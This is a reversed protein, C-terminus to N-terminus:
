GVEVGLLGLWYEYSVLLTSIVAFAVFLLWSHLHVWQQWKPLKKFQEESLTNIEM